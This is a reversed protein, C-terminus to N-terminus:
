DSSKIIEELKEIDSPEDVDTVEFEYKADLEKVLAKNSKIIVNGGSDKPLNRLEDFFKGPFIVPTYVEGDFSVRWISDKDNQWSLALATLTEETLLPQDAQLFLYGHHKGLAEVGTRITDSKYPLDHLVFNAKYIECLTAIEDYRTIVVSNEFIDSLSTLKEITHAVVPKEALTAMLKNSGFRMSIGSALVICGLGGVPKDLDVVFADNRSLIKKLFNYDDKRVCAIVHKINFLKELTNCYASNGCELYGIEDVAVQEEPSAICNEILEVGKTEINEICPTMKKEAELRTGIQFKDTGVWNSMTVCTDNERRSLIGCFVSSTLANFLTTKGIGHSGTILIHKKGSAEFARRLAAVTVRSM